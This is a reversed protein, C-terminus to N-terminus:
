RKKEKWTIKLKILKDKRRMQILDPGLRTVQDYKMEGWNAVNINIKWSGVFEMHVLYVSLEIIPRQSHHFKISSVELRAVEVESHSTSEIMDGVISNDKLFNDARLLFM